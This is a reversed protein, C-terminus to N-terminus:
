STCGGPTVKLVAGPGIDLDALTGKPVEIAYRYPRDAGHTPCDVVEDPCPDMDSSSIFAGDSDFFAISLPIRTNRMFFEGSSEVQFAFIMGAYGAFNQQEMMGKAHLAITDALLACREAPSQVDPRSITFTSEAFTEFPERAGRFALTVPSSSQADDLNGELSPDAPGNASQIFAAGLGTALVVAITRMLLKLARPDDAVRLPPRHQGSPLPTSDIM